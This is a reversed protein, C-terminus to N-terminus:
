NRGLIGQKILALYKDKSSCNNYLDAQFSGLEDEWIEGTGTFGGKTKGWNWVKSAIRRDQEDKMEKAVKKYNPHANQWIIDQSAGDFIEAEIFYNNEAIRTLQWIMRGTTKHMDRNVAAVLNSKIKPVNEEHGSLIRRWVPAARVYRQYERIQHKIVEVNKLIPIPLREGPKLKMKAVKYQPKFSQIKTLLKEAMRYQEAQGKRALKKADQAEDYLLNIEEQRTLFLPSRLWETGVKDPLNSKGKLFDIIMSYYQHEFKGKNKRWESLWNYSPRYAVKFANIAQISEPYRCLENLAMAMVMPTEPAFTKRLGGSQLNIATGVASRYKNQMLYAWSLESLARALENSSKSINRLQLEAQKYEGTRYFSRALVMRAQEKYKRIASPFSTKQGVLLKSMWKIVQTHNKQSAHYLGNALAEYSVSDKLLTLIKSLKEKSAGQGLENMFYLFAAKQVTASMPYQHLNNGVQDSIFITPFMEQTSALCELAALQFPLTSKNVPRAAISSFGLQSLHYLKSAFLARSIWYEGFYKSETNEAFQRLALGESFGRAHSRKQRLFLAFEDASDQPIEKSLNWNEFKTCAKTVSTEKLPQNASSMSVFVLFNLLAIIIAFKSINNKDKMNGEPAM